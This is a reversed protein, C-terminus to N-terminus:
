PGALDPCVRLSLAISDELKGDLEVDAALKASESIPTNVDSM